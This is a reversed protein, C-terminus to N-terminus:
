RSFVVKRIAIAKGERALRVLYMGGVGASSAGVGLDFSHDGAGLAGRFVSRVQRGNLDLLSLSIDAEFRALGLLVTSGQRTGTSLIDFSHDQSSEPAISTTTRVEAVNANVFEFRDEVKEWIVAVVEIQERNWSDEGTLQFFFEGEAGEPTEGTALPRGFLQDDAAARLVKQHLVERGRSAQNSLVDNELLLISLFYDGEAATFFQYRTKVKLENGQWFAEIGANVVPTQGIKSRLQGEAEAQVSSRDLREENVYFLPQGFAGPLNATLESAIGSHLNSTASGHAAILVAQEEYREILMEFDDWATEGCSRCWTATVKTILASQTEPVEQAAGLFSLFLLFSTFPATKM